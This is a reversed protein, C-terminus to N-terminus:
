EVQTDLSIQTLDRQKIADIVRIVEQYAIQGDGRINLVPPDTQESLRDLYELLTSFDIQQDGWFYELDRNISISQFNIDENQSQDSQSERPLDLPITQELLPTAIIFIILLAFALDILPTINISSVTTLSRDKRLFKARHKM